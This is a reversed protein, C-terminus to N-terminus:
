RPILDSAKDDRDGRGAPAHTALVAALDPREHGIAEAVSSPILSVLKSITQTSNAGLWIKREKQVEDLAQICFQVTMFQEPVEGFLNPNEIAVRCMDADILDHPIRKLLPPHEKVAGRCIDSTLLDTPVVRILNYDKEVCRSVIDTTLFDRPVEMIASPQSELVRDLLAKDVLDPRRRLVVGVSKPDTKVAVEVIDRDLFEKPMVPLADLVEAFRGVAALCVSRDIASMPVRSLIVQGRAIAPAVLAPTWHEKELDYIDNGYRAIAERLIAVAKRGDATAAGPDERLVDLMLSRHNQSLAVCLAPFEAELRERVPDLATSWPVRRDAEDMFQGSEVHFQYKKGKAVFVILPGASNYTDFMNYGSTAATCWRTGRGWWCAARQTKPIAIILGDEDCVVDSEAYAAERERRDEERSSAAAQADAFDGVAQWVDGLAAYRGIDRGEPPLRRKYREFAELTEKCKPLDEPPLKGAVALRLMWDLYRGRPTPDAKRYVDFVVSKTLPNSYAAVLKDHAQGEAAALSRALLAYLAGHDRPSEIVTELLREGYSGRLWAIRDGAAASRPVDDPKPAADDPM